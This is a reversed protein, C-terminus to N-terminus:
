TEEPRLTRLVRPVHAEPCEPIAHVEQPSGYLPAGGHLCCDPFYRLRQLPCEQRRVSRAIIQAAVVAVDVLLM